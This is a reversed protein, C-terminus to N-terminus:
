LEDNMAAMFLVITQRLETFQSFKCDSSNSGWCFVNLGNSMLKNIDEHTPKMLQFLDDYFFEDCLGSCSSVGHKPIDFMLGNKVWAKYIPLYKRKKM